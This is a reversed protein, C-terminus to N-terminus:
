FRGRAGGGGSRGGGFKGRGGSLIEVIWFVFLFARGRTVVGLVIVGLILVAWQWTKLPVWSIPYATKGTPEGTYENILITGIEYTTEYLGDELAGSEFYPVLYTAALDAVRAGTLIGMLGYGVEIKWTGDSVAVVILVGNDMGEKGIANKQFVRLAFYSIDNPQTTNVVLVAVECSTEFDIQYCMDDIASSYDSPLVGAQDNVYPYITPIGEFRTDKPPFLLRFSVAMAGVVLLAMVVLTIALRTNPRM